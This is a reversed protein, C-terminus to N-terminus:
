RQKREPWSVVVHDPVERRTVVTEHIPGVTTGEILGRHEPCRWTRVGDPREVATDASRRCCDSAAMAHPVMPYMCNVYLDTVRVEKLENHPM